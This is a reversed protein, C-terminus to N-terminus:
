YVQKGKIYKAYVADEGAQYCFQVLRRELDPELPNPEKEEDLVLIDAEYGPLFSGVKGFFSGGGMTALYFAERFSVPRAGTDQLRWYLRSVAVTDQIARFMSLSFGGAVDTGLGINLGYELYKRVPAIGSALSFNSNACHAVYVGNKKMRGIEADPSYVCHAMVVPFGGGFLGFMDYADGYFEAKQNLRKVLEVESLNESLHSQVPLDYEERLKGLGRMLPESCSPVFRPTLIPKCNVCRDRVAEVFERTDELSQEATERLRDPAERDMNVKGVYASFGATELLEALMVASDKHITAFLCARTTPSKLLAEVFTKYATEAYAPDAYKMEEPFAYQNLWELLEMDMGLGRFPFQPAHLHLDTMGPIILRNGYDHITENGTLGRAGSAKMAAFEEGSCVAEVTGGRVVLYGEKVSCLAARDRM